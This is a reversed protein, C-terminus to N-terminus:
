RSPRPVYSIKAAWQGSAGSSCCTSAPGQVRQRLVDGRRGEVLREAPLIRPQQSAVDTRGHACQLRLPYPGAHSRCGRARGSGSPGPRSSSSRSIISGSTAPPPLRRNRSSPASRNSRSASLWTVLVARDDRGVSGCTASGAIDPPANLAVNTIELLRNRWIQFTQAEGPTSCPGMPAGRRRCSLQPRPGYAAASTGCSVFSGTMPRPLFALRSALATFPLVLFSARLDPLLPLFGLIGRLMSRAGETIHGTGTPHGPPLEGPGGRGSSFYSFPWGRATVHPLQCAADAPLWSTGIWALQRMHCCFRITQAGGGASGILHRCAFRASGPVILKSM